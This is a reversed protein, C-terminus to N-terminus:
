GENDYEKWVQYLAWAMMNHVYPMNMAMAYRDKIKEMVATFREPIAPPLAELIDVDRQKREAMTMSYQGHRELQTGDECIANLAAQRSISDNM